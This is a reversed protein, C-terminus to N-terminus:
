SGQDLIRTTQFAPAPFPPHGLSNLTLPYVSHVLFFCAPKTLVTIEHKKGRKIHILWGLPQVNKNTQVKQVNVDAM